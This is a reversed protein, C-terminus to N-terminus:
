ATARTASVVGAGGRQFVTRLSVGSVRHAAVLMLVLDVAVRGSWAAAAGVIGFRGVLYWVVPVYLLLELAVLKAPIDPRGGAEVFTYPVHAMANLLVGVALIRLATSGAAAYSAGMWVRLIEPALVLVLLSPVLMAAGLVRMSSRFLRDLREAGAAGAVGVVTLLPFLATILSNPVILLRAMGEYPVTYYGAATLGVRAGLVFRDLYVLLPSVLGTLAVWSGFSVLGHLRRWARPWEVRFGPVARRIVVVTAVLLVVRWAAVWCLIAPLSAGRVALVASLIVVGSASPIKVATSLDFRRAGELVGRLTTLALVVPLNLGVAMLVRTGEPVLAPDVRFVHPAVWPAALALAGGAATGMLLQAAVSVATIQPVDREGRALADAVYRVTAKDLGVDFVTLYELFAWAIGLLGFRAPGLAHTLVPLVLAAVALPVAFGALTLLADRGLRSRVATLLEDMM